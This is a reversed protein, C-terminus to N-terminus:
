LKEVCEALVECLSPHPHVTSRLQFTTMHNQLLVAAEGIMLDAGEGAIVIEKLEGTRADAWIKAFGQTDGTMVAAASSYYYSRGAIEQDPRRQNERVSVQAVPFPVYVVSPTVAPEIEPEGFIKQVTKVAQYRATSALSCDDRVDGIEYEKPIRQTGAIYQGRGWTQEPQGLNGLERKRSGGCWLIRAEELEEVGPKKGKHLSVGAEELQNEVLKVAERDFGTLISRGEEYLSVHSGLGALIMACEVGTVGAGIVAVAEPVAEMSLLEEPMLMEQMPNKDAQAEGSVQSLVRQRPEWDAGEAHILVSPPKLVEKKGDGYVLSVSGDTEIKARAALLKVGAKKLQYRMGYQLQAIKEMTYDQLGKLDVKVTGSFAGEAAAREAKQALALFHLMTKTPICGRNLCVGGIQREEILIVDRGRRACEAAATCGAIGGGIIVIDSM